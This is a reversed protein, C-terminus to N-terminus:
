YDKDKIIPITGRLNRCQRKLEENKSKSVDLEILSCPLGGKPLSRITPCEIIKLTKLSRLKHLEAPLSQLKECGDIRLANLSSLLQLAANQEETFHQAEIWVINLKTLSSALCICIPEALVRAIDDTWLQQLQCLNSGDFGDFFKPSTTVMLTSLHGQTLLGQLDEGQLGQLEGFQQLRLFTLSSLNSLPALTKMGGVDELILVQLSSPFPNCTRHSSWYSLLESICRMELYRLFRLGQLGCRGMDGELEDFQLILEPIKEIVLGELQPPLLLLGATAAAKEDEGRPQQHEQRLHADELKNVSPSPSLASPATVQQEAVGLGKIKECEGIFLWSLKPFHYLLQTLEEGSTSCKGIWLEEISPFQYIVTNEGKVPLLANHSNYISLKRLSSLMQLHELPLPPCKYMQLEKLDTLNSFAMVKWFAGNLHDHKGEIGLCLKSLYNKSYGLRQFDSGVEEISASSPASAWPLPPLPSLKPCKSIELKQLTTFKTMNIGRGSQFPLEMLEPCKRVILVELQSFLRCADNGTWKALRPIAVLELRKLNQFSHETCGLSNEGHENVLWLEGLPPFKNWDVGDLRLSQLGKISLNVGLWSPCTAGGHGSICLEQLSNHPKLDELVIEQDQSCDKTSWDLILKHLHCKNLLKAENAAQANELKYIGLTGNLEELQGLQRLAFAETQRRVEFRRLIQLYQVKGVDAIDSHLNDYPVLFHRLRVLNNFDRPLGFHGWCQQLDLIRLHYFRSITNPLRIEPFYGKNIRLYRLHVLNSFNHLMNEIAYSAVSLLIVRLAQAFPVIFSGHYKGFLMLSRLKEVDLRKSLMSFDKKFNEFAVRDNVDMDDIVISLHRITMSPPIQVSRVNSSSIALCEYTSVKLALEHLLDHMIYCPSVDDKADKKFFGYDVLENLYSLGIDEITKNQDQSHILDLGIWLHILEECEFRYDVPFLGCYAFCPQLHSPLYDYSLKLAPMIDNESTQSEWEKSELVRTWHDLDLHNRLLRGVTKAALPSRKLKVALKKGTELLIAHNKELEDDGVCAKFLKWFEEPELGELHTPRHITKIMEAVMPFRTTVLIINGKTQAKTLPALFRKWEDENGCNWMDDLVLFFKKSKLRKEILDDLIGGKEDKVEPISKSIDEKLRYVNFILSVCVWVKVDFHVEEYICRALATKGIGGPGVIPIVTLDEDRYHGQTIDSIIKSKESKRGYFLKPDVFLKPRNMTSRPLVHAYGPKAAFAVNQSMAICHGIKHNTSELLELNLITSVKACVPKLQEVIHKMRISLNVRDFKLKPTKMTHERKKPMKQTVTYGEDDHDHVLCLCPLRKNGILHISGHASSTLKPMCGSSVVGEDDAHRIPPSSNQRSAQGGGACTCGAPLCGKKISRTTHRTNLVIDHICGKAHEDAAEYTGDVEDQIRFYDLEDLVDEADYALGRLEVLLQRLAPNHTERGSSSHLMGQAYLLELKIAGVNPGLESSAAWAEVFGGSLPGLAKGVVLRAAEVTVSEM